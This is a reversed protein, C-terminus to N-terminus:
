KGAEKNGDNDPTATDGAVSYTGKGKAKVVYMAADADALLRELSEDKQGTAGAIGISFSLCPDIVELKESMAKCYVQLEEAKEIAEHPPIDELWMAFEDGGLRSVLDGVRSNEKLLQSVGKLVDDGKEHGFRDNVPKFNDLDIYFLVNPKKTRKGHAVRKSVDEHFARRNLLGSLEDTRSLKVLEERAKIQILAVGLHDSLLHLLHAEDKEIEIAEKRRVVAVVGDIKNKSFIPSLFIRWDNWDLTSLEYEGGDKKEREAFWKFLQDEIQDETASNFAVELVGATNKRAIWIRTSNLADCAGEGAIQFLKKPDVETRMADVVAALMEEQSALRDLHTQQAMEETIDRGAGRNGTHTGADDFVPISTVSMCALAKSKDRLWVIQDSIPSVTYFPNEATEDTDESHGLILGKAAIGDLEAARYGIAGRPSVYRFRGKEDTEWVFEATCTVLDKFLQRSAILANTLNRQLTVNRATVLVNGRVEELPLFTLDYIETEAGVVEFVATQHAPGNESYGKQLAEAFGSDHEIELSSVLHEAPTNFHLVALDAALIFAPGPFEDLLQEQRIRLQGLTEDHGKGWKSFSSIQSRFLGM